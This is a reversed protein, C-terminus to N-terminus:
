GWIAFVVYIGFFVVWTGQYFRAISKQEKLNLLQTNIAFGVLLVMLSIGLGVWGIILSYISAALLTGALLIAGTRYVWEPSRLLTLTKIGFAEDGETDPLDKFWAIIVGFVFIIATLLWVEGTIAPLVEAGGSLEHAFHLYLVLNIILGRVVIICFAAWFHYRKLRMPEASYATGLAISALVTLPLFPRYVFCGVVALLGCAGVILRGTRISYAGSALPLYPKNIRDIEVDTLQNLGTIYVNAALCVFLSVAFVFWDHQGTVRSAILYLTLLSLTTGILTHARGFRLFTIM